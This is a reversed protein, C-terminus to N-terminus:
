FSMTGRERQSYYGQPDELFEITDLISVFHEGEETVLLMFFKKLFSDDTEESLTQYYKIGNNEFESAMKLAQIDTTSGKVREEITKLANSFINTANAASGRTLDIDPWECSSELSKFIQTLKVIHQEEAKVLEAFVKKALKSEARGASQEYFLKGDREMKIAQQFADLRGDTM